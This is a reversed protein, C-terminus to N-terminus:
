RFVELRDGPSVLHELDQPTEELLHRGGTILRDIAIEIALRLIEARSAARHQSGEDAAILM